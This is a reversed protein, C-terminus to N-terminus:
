LCTSYLYGGRSCGNPGRAYSQLFRTGLIEHNIEPVISLFQDLRFSSRNWPLVVRPLMALMFSFGKFFPISGWAIAHVLAQSLTHLEDDVILTFRYKRFARELTSGLGDDIFTHQPM